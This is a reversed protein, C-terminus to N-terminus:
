QAQENEEVSELQDDEEEDIIRPTKATSSFTLPACYTGNLIKCFDTLYKRTRFDASSERLITEVQKTMDRKLIPDESLELESLEKAFTKLIERNDPNEKMVNLFEMGLTNHLNLGNSCYIPRTANVIYKLVIELKVDLLPSDYPAGVLTFITPTLADHLYEQKKRKFINELFVGLLQNIEAPMAPNFYMLLFKSMLERTYYVGHLIMKCFGCILVKTIRLDDSQDLLHQLMQMVDLTKIINIEDQEDDDEINTYLTRGSRKSRNIQSNSTLIMNNANNNNDDVNEMKEIGYHLLLDFICEVSCEWLLVHISKFVQSKIVLYIEKAVSEYLLSYATSTKLSWIRTTLDTSELHFRVFENYIQLIDHTITKVGKTMVAYYCIRLNKIIDSSTIKKSIVVSSLNDLLSQTSDSSHLEAVPKLLEVLEENLKQYEESIKQCEAYQKQKVFQTEQEKLDMMHLKIAKAQVKRDIDSRDILDDIIAQRSYESPVGPKIIETVIQNFFSLRQEVVPIIKEIVHSIEEIAFESIDYMLLITKLLKQLQAKGIEDSMDNLQVIQLLLILCQSFYIKQYKEDLDIGFNFNNVFNEMYNCFVSLEPLIEVDLVNQDILSSEEEGDSGIDDKIDDSNRTKDNLYDQHCKTIMKWVILMELTSKELQLCNKYEKSETANLYSILDNLKRRKFIDRLAMESLKRFKILENESSDLKIARIFEAYDFDYVGIWNSLLLNTVVKRVIESRDNLGANLIAIRDAIKYSKVSYSSMQLYTHRRVKEDVDHLRDLIAPINQLKKAIATITAQRVKVAPDSEMHYVFSKTVPDESSDPDQLRQLAFVSQARVLPSTDKMFYLMRETIKDIISEDLEAKQSFSAMTNTVLLCIRVRVHVSSSTIALIEKFFTEVIPHTAGSETLLEGYEAVFIGMFKLERSAYEDGDDRILFVQLATMFSKMFDSHKMKEYLKKLEALAKQNNCDTKQVSLIAKIVNLGDGTIYDPEIKQKKAPTEGKKVKKPKEIVKEELKGNEHKKIAIKRSRPM